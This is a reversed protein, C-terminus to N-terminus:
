SFVNAGDTEERSAGGPGEGRALLQLLSWHPRHGCLEGLSALFAGPEPVAPHLLLLVHAQRFTEARRGM